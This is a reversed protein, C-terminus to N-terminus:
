KRPREMGSRRQLYNTIPDPVTWPTGGADVYEGQELDWYLSLASSYGDIGPSKGFGVRNINTNTTKVVASLKEFKDKLIGASDIEDFEVPLYYEPDDYGISITVQLNMGPTYPSRNLTLADDMSSLSNGVGKNTKAAASVAAYLDPYNAELDQESIHVPAM